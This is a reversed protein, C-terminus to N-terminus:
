IPLSVTILLSNEDKTWAHIKGNHATVIAKAVSLGIGHGGTESNRSSDVRYFRDFLLPLHKEEIRHKTTNYISLLIARNQKELTVSVKGGEPSYKLANDLLITILQQISKENAKLSINPQIHFFFEKKQTLALTQFSFATESVMDSLPFDIMQLTNEAEEMRALYVLDNTLATLRKTQKQIDLLWENAGFEMELVDADANIITLPTKIEHGADTIFRKQKEYSESIPRIIRNSFFAILAFVILYGLVSIGVSALLFSQFSDIRIGCDLFIIRVANDEDHKAYRFQDIFGREASELLATQAYNLAESTNVSVIRSTETQIIAGSSSDLTVSFYRSEYPVEPSLHPPLKREDTMNEKNRDERPISPFAGRNESLISLLEDAEKVMGNYNVINIGGIIITLVLFFATMSLLIFKFQLKKIM